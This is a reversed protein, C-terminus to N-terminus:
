TRHASFVKIASADDGLNSGKITVTELGRGETPYLNGLTLAPKVTTGVPEEDDNSCAGFMFATLALPVLVTYKLNFPQKMIDLKLTIFTMKMIHEWVLAQNNFPAHLPACNGCSLKLWYIM